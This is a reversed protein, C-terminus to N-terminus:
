YIIFKPKTHTHTHTNVKIRDDLNFLPIDKELKLQCVQRKRKLRPNTSEM